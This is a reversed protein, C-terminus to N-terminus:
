REGTTDPDSGAHDDALDGRFTRALKKGVRRPKDEFLDEAGSGGESLPITALM